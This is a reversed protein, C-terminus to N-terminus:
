GRTAHLVPGGAQAIPHAGAPEEGHCLDRAGVVCSARRDATGRGDGPGTGTGPLYWRSRVVPIGRGCAPDGPLVRQRDPSGPRNGTVPPLVSVSRAPIGALLVSGTRRDDPM